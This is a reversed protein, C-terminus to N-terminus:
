KRSLIEFAKDLAKGQFRKVGVNFVNGGISSMGAGRWGEVFVATQNPAHGRIEFVAAAANDKFVSGKVEFVDAGDESRGWNVKWGWDAMRLTSAVVAPSADVILGNPHREIKM